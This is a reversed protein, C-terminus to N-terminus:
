HFARRSNRPRLRFRLLFTQAQQDPSFLIITDIQASLSLSDYYSAGVDALDDESVPDLKVMGDGAPVFYFRDLDPIFIRGPPEM